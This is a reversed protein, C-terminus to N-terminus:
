ARRTGGRVFVRMGTERLVKRQEDATLLATAAIADRVFGAYSGVSNGADSGWMVRDAGFTDVLHRLVESAPVTAASLQRLNLSSFKLHINALPALARHEAGIGYDPSGAADPWGLHDLVLRVNPYDSALQACAALVKPTSGPPTTMIVVTLSYQEAIAWSRRSLATDLWPISGDEAQGGTLRLGALGRERIYQRMLEPTADDAADLAVVPMLRSRFRDASDLTYYNSFGYAGRNQVAVGGSVNNEDMWALLKEAEPLLVGAAPQAEGGTNATARPYRLLDPSILHAHTDFLPFSLRPAPLEAARGALSAAAAGAAATGLFQRRTLM